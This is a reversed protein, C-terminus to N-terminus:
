EGKEKKEEEPAALARIEKALYECTISHDSDNQFSEGECLKACAEREEQILRNLSREANHLRGIMQSAQELVNATCGGSEVLEAWARATTIDDVTQAKVGM